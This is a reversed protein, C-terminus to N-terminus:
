FENGKFAKLYLAVVVFYKRESILLKVTILNLRGASNESHAIKWQLDCHM